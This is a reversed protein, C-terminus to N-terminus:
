GLGVPSASIVSFRFGRSTSKTCGDQRGLQLYTQPNLRDELFGHVGERLSDACAMYRSQRRAALRGDASGWM